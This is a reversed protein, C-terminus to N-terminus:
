KNTLYMKEIYLIIEEGLITIRYQIMIDLGEMCQCKKWLTLYLNQQMTELCVRYHHLLLTGFSFM